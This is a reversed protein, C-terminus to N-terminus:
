PIENVGMRALKRRLRNIQAARAECERALRTEYIKKLMERDRPCRSLRSPKFRTVDTRCAENVAHQAAWHAQTFLNVIENRLHQIHQDRDNM